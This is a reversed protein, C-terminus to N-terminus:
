NYTKAGRGDNIPCRSVVITVDDTGRSHDRYLCAALISPDHAQIHPYKNIDWRTNIGDSHLILLRGRGWELEQDHIRSSMVHGVIGNFSILSKGFDFGLLKGTINGVGCYSISQEKFNYNLAMGVAGRTKKISHDIQQLVQAPSNKPLRKYVELAAESAAHAETGHGLGDLILVQFQNKDTDIDLEYGDGCFEEGPKPVSFGSAIPPTQLPANKDSSFLRSLLVTGQGSQSYLDFYHSLRKIAGLGEGATGSTSFGDQMAQNINGIGRGKDISIIEIGGKGNQYIIKWLFERKKDGFKLLNSSLEAVIINLKGIQEVSFGLGEAAKAIDKKIISFYSRDEIWYRKHTGSNSRGGSSPLRQEM